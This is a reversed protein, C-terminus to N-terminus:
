PKPEVSPAHVLRLRNDLLYQLARCQAETSLGSAKLVSNVANLTSIQPEDSDIRVYLKTSTTM